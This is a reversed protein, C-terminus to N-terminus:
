IGSSSSVGRDAQKVADKVKSLLDQLEESTATMTIYRYLGRDFIKLSVFFMPANIKGISKSRIAYDIRWDVGVITPAAIGIICYLITYYILTYSLEACCLLINM